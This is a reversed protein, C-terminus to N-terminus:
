SCELSRGRLQLLPNQRWQELQDTLVAGRLLKMDLWLFAGLGGMLLAFEMRLNQALPPVCSCSSQNNKSRCTRHPEDEDPLLYYRESKRTIFFWKEDIFVHDFLDKFRPNSHLSEHDLMDVCWQLRAKMNADTLHPKISSTHRRVKGEKVHKLLTKKALM